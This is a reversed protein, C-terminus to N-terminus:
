SASSSCWRRPRRKGESRLSFGYLYLVADIKRFQPYESRAAAPVAGAVLHLDLGRSRAAHPVVGRRAEARQQVERRRRQLAAMQSLFQSKSEEWKLEALQFM